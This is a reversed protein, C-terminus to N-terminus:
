NIAQLEHKYESIDAIYQADLRILMKRWEEPIAPQREIDFATSVPRELGTPSVSAPTEDFFEEKVQEYAAKKRRSRGPEAYHNFIYESKASFTRL